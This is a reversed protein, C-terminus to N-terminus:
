TIAAYEAGKLFYMAIMPTYSVALIIFCILATLAYQRDTTFQELWEVVPYYGLAILVPCLCLIYRPFTPTITLVALLTIASIVSIASFIIALERKKCFASYLILPILWLAPIWLVEIPIVMATTDVTLGYNQGIRDHAIKLYILFPTCAFVLISFYVIIKLRYKWLLIAAMMGIPVVSFMHAWLAAASFVMFLIKNTRTHDGNYLKIFYLATMTFMLTVMSYARAFRSYFVMNYTVTVSFATLIGLFDDKLEKGVLYAAPITLVGFILAPFRIVFATCEGFLIGSYHAFIYYTPPNADNGFAVALIGKITDIARLRTFEEDYVVPQFDLHYLRLAIGVLILLFLSIAVWNRSIWDRM